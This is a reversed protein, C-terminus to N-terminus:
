LKKELLEPNLAYKVATDRAIIGQKYMNRSEIPTVQRM